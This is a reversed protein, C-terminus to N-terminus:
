DPLTYLDVPHAVLDWALRAGVALVILSLLVRLQEGRLLASVRTGFQTGIVGGAIMLIALMIDVTYNQVAHMFATGASVFALQFLSTGVVVSTPMGIFYIMAPILLFGGGVGMIATLLGIGAGTVLPILASIYLRSQPFRMKLPLGHVWYHQHLRRRPAGKKRTRVLATLSEWFMMLGVSGLFFVYSLTVFTDIRGIARLWQFVLIGIASGLIGGGVLVAGMRLDLTGRRLHALVGSVSSALIQTTGSGVAVAPPIGIFILLPTMLFGGGVGFVGSLFGVIGGLGLVLFLNVSMEAVPLYIDM